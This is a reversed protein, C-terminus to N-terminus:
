NTPYTQEYQNLIANGILRGIKASGSQNFHTYDSGALIPKKEAWTKMSNYGGMAEYLNFFACKYKQAAAQQAKLLNEVGNGTKYEGDIKFSKDATSIILISTHPFVKRIHKLTRELQSQYYKFNTISDNYLLNPGYHLVVLDYPRLSDIQRLMKSNLRIMETGSTGRFSLNDLIVGTKSEAAFGYIPTACSDFKLTVQNVNSDANLKAINFHGTGNVKVPKNNFNFGIKGNGYLISFDYLSSLHKGGGPKINLTADQKAFFTHGSLGIILKQKNNTYNVDDWNQNAIAKVTQRFHAVVSTVPIFGVGNGGFKNQLITRITQTILDGEIMSDGFYGIRVKRNNHKAQNKLALLFTAIGDQATAEDPREIGVDNRILKAVEKNAVITDKVLDKQPTSKKPPVYTSVRKEVKQTELDAFINVANLQYKKWFQKPIVVSILLLVICTFGIILFPKNHNNQQQM